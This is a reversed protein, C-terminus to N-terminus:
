IRKKDRFDPEDEPEIGRNHNNM